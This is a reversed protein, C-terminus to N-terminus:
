RLWRSYQPAPRRTAACTGRPPWSARRRCRAPPVQALTAGAPPPEGAGLSLGRPRPLCRGHLEYGVASEGRCGGQNLLAVTSIALNLYPLLSDLRGVLEKLRRCLQAASASAADPSPADQVQSRTPPAPPRPPKTPSPCASGAPGRRRDCLMAAWPRAGTGVRLVDQQVLAQRFQEIEELVGLAVGLPEQLAQMLLPAARECRAYPLVMRSASVAQLAAGGGAWLAAGGGASLRRVTNGRQVHHALIDVPLCLM